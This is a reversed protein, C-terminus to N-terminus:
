DAIFAFDAHNYIIKPDDTSFPEPFKGIETRTQHSGSIVNKLIKINGKVLPLLATGRVKSSVYRNLQVRDELVIRYEKLPEIVLPTIDAWIQQRNATTVEIMKRVVSRKAAVDWITVYVTKLIKDPIVSVKTIKGPKLAQFSFGVDQLGLSGGIRSFQVTSDAIFSTLPTEEVVAPPEDKKCAAIAVLFLFFPILLKKM